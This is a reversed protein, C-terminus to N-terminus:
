DVHQWTNGRIIHGITERHVDFQDAIKKMTMGAKRMRRIKPIDRERLRAFHARSGYPLNGHRIRDDHNEKHTAWRLNKLKPNLPNGDWHAVEHEPTPKPGLFAEAVLRHVKRAYRIGLVWLHVMPYGTTDLPTKLVYGAKAGGARKIRRVRGLDSVQYGDLGVTDRWEEGPTAPLVLQPRNARLLRKRTKSKLKVCEKCEGRGPYFMRLPLSAHCKSCIRTKWNMNRLSYEDRQSTLDLAM